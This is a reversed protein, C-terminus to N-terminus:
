LIQVYVCICLRVLAVHKPGDADAQMAAAFVGARHPMGLVGHVDELDYISMCLCM